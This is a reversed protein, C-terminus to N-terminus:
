SSLSNESNEQCGMYFWEEGVPCQPRPFLIMMNDKPCLIDGDVCHAIVDGKALIQGHYFDQKFLDQESQRFYVHELYVTKQHDTIEFQRDILGFYALLRNITDSAVVISNEDEHQGCEIGIGIKGLDHMFSVTHKSQGKDTAGSLSRAYATDWGKIVFPVGSAKIIQEEIDTFFDFHMAFPWGQTHISHFDILIDCDQLLETLQNALTEEYSHPHETKKFIRNLNKEVFRTGQKYAKPNAVPILLLSGRELKVTGTHLNDILQQIAQTGCVENGHIAGMLVIKPGAKGSNFNYSKIM